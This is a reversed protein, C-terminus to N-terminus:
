SVLPQPEAWLLRSLDIAVAPLAGAPRLGRASTSSKKQYEGSVLSRFFPM